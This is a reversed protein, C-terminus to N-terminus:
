SVAERRGKQSMQCFVQLVFITALTLTFFILAFYICILSHFQRGHLMLLKKGFNTLLPLLQCNKQGSSLSQQYAILLFLKKIDQRPNLDM